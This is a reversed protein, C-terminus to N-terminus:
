ALAAVADGLQRLTSVERMADVHRAYSGALSDKTDWERVPEPNFWFVHRASHRLRELETLASPRDHSRADGVILVTTKPNVADRWRSLFTSLVAAYDSRGDGTVLGRRSLLARADLMGRSHELLDTIEVVGDIFVWSRVHQFERDLAHLLALTFPAFQAVSGSVDCLVALEPRSPRRRRLAPDLPIGGSGISGRITRRMDVSGRGRQHRRGLRAAIQRAMPRVARRLADLEDASARLIPLDSLGDSILVPQDPLELSLREAVLREILEALDRVAQDAEANRLRRDLESQDESGTARLRRLLADLGVGRLVRATHHRQGRVQQDLGGWEDVAADALRELSADDGSELASLMGDRIDEDGDSSAIARSRDVPKAPRTRPLLRDLLRDLVPEHASDKILTAHLAARVETSSRLDVTTLSRSADIVEGSSVPVGAARLQAAVTTLFDALGHKDGCVTTSV